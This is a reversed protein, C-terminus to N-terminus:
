DTLQTVGPLITKSVDLAGHLDGVGLSGATLQQVVSLGGAMNILCPMLPPVTQKTMVIQTVTAAVVM